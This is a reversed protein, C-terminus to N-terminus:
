YGRKGINEKGKSNKEEQLGRKTVREARGTEDNEKKGQKRKKGKGKGKGEEETLRVGERTEEGKEKEM